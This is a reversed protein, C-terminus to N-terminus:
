GRRRVHSVKEKRRVFLRFVTRTGNERVRLFGERNRNRLKKKNLDRSMNRVICGCLTGNRM